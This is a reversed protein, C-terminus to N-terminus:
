GPGDDQNLLRKLENIARHQIVRIAGESKQLIIAIEQNDLEDLFKLKIVLQQDSSLKQVAALFKKQKFTFDTQEIIQDEYALLNELNNIDLDPKKARYYDIVLNRAIRYLWSNFSSIAEIERLRDWARIFTESVLDEAVERHNVRFYVFRYIKEFYLDYLESFAQEDGASAKRVLLNLKEPKQSHEAM